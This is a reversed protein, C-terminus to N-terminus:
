SVDVSEFDDPNPHVADPPLEVADPRPTTVDPHPYRHLLELVNREIMTCLDDLPLFDIRKTDFPNQLEMGIRDLSLLMYSLVMVLIPTIYYQRSNDGALFQALDNDALAGEIALPLTILYLFIFQRVQIAGSRALPTARIRECGGLHDILRARQEEARSYAFGDMGGRRAECLLESLRTTVEDPMHLADAIERRQDGDLLRELEPLDRQYRLSRRVVHPFSAVYAIFQSRWRADALGRTLGVVALNRSQNVIGGWLIRGEWWRDYGANVRLVLLLGLVAGAAQFPGSAVTLDVGYQEYGWQILFVIAVSFVGFILVDLIIRPAVSGRILFTGLWYSYSVRRPDKKQTPTSRVPRRAIDEVGQRPDATAIPEPTALPTDLQSQTDVQPGADTHRGEDPRSKASFRKGLFRKM